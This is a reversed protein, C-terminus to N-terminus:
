DSTQNSGGTLASVKKTIIVAIPLSILAGIVVAGLIYPTSDFGTVFAIILLIGVAVTFAISFMATLLPINM